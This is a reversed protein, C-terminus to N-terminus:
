WRLPTSVVHLKRPSPAASHTVVLKPDKTTGTADALYARVRESQTPATGLRQKSSSLMIYTTGTKEINSVFASESTFANYAEAAWPTSTAFTALLTKSSLDAGAVFDTTALTGGWNHLRAEVTFDDTSLDDFGYMSLVASDITDTDPIVSTDFALFLQWCFYNTSLLQGCLNLVDPSTDNFTIDVGSGARAVSYVADVSQIRGDSLDSFITTTTM